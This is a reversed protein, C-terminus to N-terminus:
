IAMSKLRLSMNVLWCSLIFPMTLLPLGLVSFGQQLMLALAIGLAPLWVQRHVQSLAIAALAGNYGYLGNLAPHPAAGQHMALALALGGASGLLAWSAARRNALLLGFLLILSALPQDLFLIQGIGRAIALTGAVWDIAELPLLSPGPPQLQLQLTPALGLLLWSLTVFPFTLAPLWRRERMRRMWLKLMLSSLGASLMILLPLMMSWAFLLSTLMGLLIGNYGYLGQEIEARACGLRQAVLTSSLGGLLAGGLLHPAGIAIALVVLLGCGFHAQFLVQSFGNLLIRLGQLADASPSSM